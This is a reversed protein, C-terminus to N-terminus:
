RALFQRARFDYSVRLPNAATHEPDVLIVQEPSRDAELEFVVRHRGAAVWLCARPTEGMRRGDVYVVAYPVANVSVCALSEPEAARAPVPRPPVPRAPAPRAPV